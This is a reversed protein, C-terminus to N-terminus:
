KGVSKLCTSLEPISILYKVALYSLQYSRGVSFLGIM